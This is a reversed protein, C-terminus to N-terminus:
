SPKFMNFTATYHIGLKHKIRYDINLTYYYYLSGIRAIEFTDRIYICYKMYKAVVDFRNNTQQFVFLVPSKAYFQWPQHFEIFTDRANNRFTEVTWIFAKSDCRSTHIYKCSRVFVPQKTKSCLICKQIM